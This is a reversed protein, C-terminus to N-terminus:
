NLHIERCILFGLGIYLSLFILRMEGCVTRKIYILKLKYKLPMILYKEWLEFVTICCKKRRQYHSKSSIM